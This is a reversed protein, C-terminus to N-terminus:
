SAMAKRCILVGAMVLGTLLLVLTSPEPVPPADEFDGSVAFVAEGGSTAFQISDLTKSDDETPLTYDHEYLNLTGSYNGVWSSDDQVVGAYALAVNSAGGSTWDPDTATPLTYTTGGSFDLTASFSGGGQNSVLFALFETAQPATLTLTGNGGGPYYLANDATYPQFQFTVSSNYASVFSGSTPLGQTTGPAGNEYWVWNGGEAITTGARPSAASSAAILEQNFGALDIPIISDAYCPSIVVLVTFIVFLPATM